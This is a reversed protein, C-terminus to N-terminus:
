SSPKRKRIGVTKPVPELFAIKVPGAGGILAHCALQTLTVDLHFSSTSHNNLFLCSYVACTQVVFKNIVSDWRPLKPVIVWM